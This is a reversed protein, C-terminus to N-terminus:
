EEIVYDDEDWKLLKVVRGEKNRACPHGSTDVVYLNEIIWKITKHFGEDIDIVLRKELEELPEEEYMVHVEKTYLHKKNEPIHKLEDYYRDDFSYVTLEGGTGTIGDYERKEEDSLEDWKEVDYLENAKHVEELLAQLKRKPMDSYVSFLESSSNTIIDSFSQIKIILRM